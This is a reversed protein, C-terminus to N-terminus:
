FKYELSPKILKFKELTDAVEKKIKSIDFREIPNTKPYNLIIEEFNVIISDIDNKDIIPINYKELLDINELNEKDGRKFYVPKNGSALSELCSNVSSTLLYKSNKITEIYEEDEIIDSFYNKLKDENGLFFYHGLLLPLDHKKGNQVLEYFWNAYDDDSFFVAKEVKKDDNSHEFFKNDVVDFPIDVGMKYLHTCFDQMHSQMTDSAEKSDDYILMDGRELVHPLNGIVDVGMGKKVGLESKAFTAARYDATCLIPDGDKLMNYVASMRRVNELGFNHGSKAYLYLQM